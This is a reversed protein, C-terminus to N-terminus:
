LRVVFWCVTLVEDRKRMHKQKQEETQVENQKADIVTGDALTIIETDEPLEINGEVKGIDQEENYEDLVSPHASDCNLIMRTSFNFLSFFFSEIMIEILESM